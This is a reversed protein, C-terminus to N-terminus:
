RAGEALDYARRLSRCDRQQATRKVGTLSNERDEGSQQHDGHRQLEKAQQRVQMADGGAEAGTRERCRQAAQQRRRSMGGRERKAYEIAEQRTRQDVGKGRLRRARGPRQLAKKGHGSEPEPGEGRHKQHAADTSRQRRRPPLPAYPQRAAADQQETENGDAAADQREGRVDGM